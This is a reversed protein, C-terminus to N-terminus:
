TCTGSRPRCIRTDRWSRFPGHPRGVCRWTHVSRTVCSILIHVGHPTQARRAVRQVTNQVMRLTLARGDKTSLVRVGRLHRHIRLARALRTTLPVHRVRGGKPMTVHGNWVARQVSLQGTALDVDPWELAIMEGCRLSAEGGLLVILLAVAGDVRAAEVLREFADFDHFAAVSQPVPLLRVSCPAQEILDWDAATKLLTNLVTLVNNVTKPAKSRLRAKLRQVDENRIADLRKSGLFPVLHIRLITEKSAIGSPKQRNARAYGDLFRGAFEELTPM